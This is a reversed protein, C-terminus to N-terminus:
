KLPQNGGSKGQRCRQHELFAQVKEKTFGELPIEGLLDALDNLYLQYITKTTDSIDDEKREKIYEDVAAKLNV